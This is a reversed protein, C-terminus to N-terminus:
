QFEKLGFDRKGMSKRETVDRAIGISGAIGGKEVMPTINFSLVLPEPNQTIVRAEFIRARGQHAWRM